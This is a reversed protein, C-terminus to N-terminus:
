VNTVEELVVWNCCCVLGKGKVPIIIHNIRYDEGNKRSDYFTTAYDDKKVLSSNYGFSNEYIIQKEINFKTKKKIAEDIKSFLEEMGSVTSDRRKTIIVEVLENKTKEKPKNKM